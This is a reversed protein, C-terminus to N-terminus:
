LVIFGVWHTRRAMGTEIVVAVTCATGPDDINEVGDVLRGPMVIRYWIRRKMITRQRPQSTRMIMTGTMNMTGDFSRFRTWEVIPSKTQQAQLGQGQAQAQGPVLERALALLQERLLPPPM